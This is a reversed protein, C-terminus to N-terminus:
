FCVTLKPILLNPIQCAPSPKNLLQDLTIKKTPQQIIEWFYLLNCFYVLFMVVTATVVNIFLRTNSQHFNLKCKSERVARLLAYLQEGVRKM